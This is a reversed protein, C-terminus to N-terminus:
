YSGVVPVYRGTRADRTRTLPAPPRTGKGGGGGKPAGSSPKTKAPTKDRHM